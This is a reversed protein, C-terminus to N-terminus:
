HLHGKFWGATESLIHETCILCEVDLVKFFAGFRIRVFLKKETEGEEMSDHLISSLESGDAPVDWIGERILVKNHAPSLELRKYLCVIENGVLSEVINTSLDVISTSDSIILVGSKDDCDEACVDVLTDQM